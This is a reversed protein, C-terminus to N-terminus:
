KARENGKAEEKTNIGMAVVDEEAKHWKIRTDVLQQPNRGMWTQVKVVVFSLFSMPGIKAIDILERRTM